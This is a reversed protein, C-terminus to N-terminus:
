LLIVITESYFYYKFDSFVLESSKLLREYLSRAMRQLSNVQSNRIAVQSIPIESYDYLLYNFGSDYDSLLGNLEALPWNVHCLLPTDFQDM